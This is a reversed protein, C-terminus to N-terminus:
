KIITIIMMVADSPHAHYVHLVHSVDCDVIWSANLM